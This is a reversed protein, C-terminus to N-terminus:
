FWDGFRRTDVSVAAKERPFWALEHDGGRAASRAAVGDLGADYAAQGIPQCLSHPIISNTADFPYTAPLGTAALGADSDADLASGTPIDVDVILPAADEDLDEPGYPLDVFLRAVNAKATKLDLTLYLCPLGPPNWRQGSGRAAFSADLPDPWDPDAVRFYRGGIAIKLLSM